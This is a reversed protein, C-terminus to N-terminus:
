ETNPVAPPKAAAKKKGPKGKVLNQTPVRWMYYSGLSRYPRWKEALTEMEENTPIAKLNYLAQFGKRVALDGVPLINLRGCHFMAFMDVSWRGIGKVATLVEYLEEDGMAVITKTELTGSHFRQALDTIYALKQRSLGCALLDQGSLELVAAPELQEICGCATKVKQAINRAAIVSLQQGMIVHALAHFASDTATPLLRDPIDHEQILPALLPDAACLKDAAERILEM